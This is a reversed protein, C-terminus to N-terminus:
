EPVTAAAISPAVNFIGDIAILISENLGLFKEVDFITKRLIILKM